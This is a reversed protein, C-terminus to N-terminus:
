LSKLRFHSLSICNGCFEQKLVEWTLVDVAKEAFGHLIIM